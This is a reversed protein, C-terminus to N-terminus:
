YFILPFAVDARCHSSFTIVKKNCFSYLHFNTLFLAWFWQFLSLKNAFHLILEYHKSTMWQYHKDM